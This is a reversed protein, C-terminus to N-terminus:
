SRKEQRRKIDEFSMKNGEEATDDPNINSFGRMLLSCSGYTSSQSVLMMRWLPAARNAYLKM